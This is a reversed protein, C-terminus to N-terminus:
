FLSTVGNEQISCVDVGCVARYRRNIENVIDTKGTTSALSNQVEEASAGASALISVRALARTLDVDDLIGLVGESRM